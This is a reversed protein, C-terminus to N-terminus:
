KKAMEVSVKAEEKAKVSVKQTTEGLTEHWFKIEYDGPPVDTLKFAGNADTLTYYPHDQVILWGSMWGHADCTLKVTEPQAFKETMKPRFKPQAKNFPPNKTSQTHINHLIGDSNVIMLEAGAPSLVVHPAYRCDKQDLTAGAEPLKKGKQINSISVVVNQIGKNPGVLLSEVVKETKACVEQDKTAAIKEPVPPTGAFKVEGSITGGDKVDIAEYGWVGAVLVVQLGVGVAVRTLQHWMHRSM